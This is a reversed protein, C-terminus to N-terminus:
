NQFKKLDSKDLENTIDIESKIEKIRKLSIDYGSCEFFKSIRSLLPLGVYGLGIIVVKKPEFAIIENGSVAVVMWLLIKDM